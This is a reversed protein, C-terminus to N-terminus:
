DPRANRAETWRINASLKGNRDRDYFILVGRPIDPYAVKLHALIANDVDDHDFTVEHQIDPDNRFRQMTTDKEFSTSDLM